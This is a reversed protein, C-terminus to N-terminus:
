RASAEASAVWTADCPPGAADTSMRRRLRRWARGTLPATMRLQESRDHIVLVSPLSLVRHEVARHPEDWVDVVSIPTSRRTIPTLRDVIQCGVAVDDVFVLVDTRGDDATSAGVGSADHTVNM